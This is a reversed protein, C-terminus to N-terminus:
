ETCDLWMCMSTSAFSSRASDRPMFESATRSTRRRFFSHALTPARTSPLTSGVAVM